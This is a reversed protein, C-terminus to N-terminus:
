NPMTYRNKFNLLEAESKLTIKYSYKQIINCEKIDQNKLALLFSPEDSSNNHKIETIKSHSEFQILTKNDQLPKIELNKTFLIQSCEINLIQRLDIETNEFTEEKGYNIQLTKEEEVQSLSLNQVTYKSFPPRM